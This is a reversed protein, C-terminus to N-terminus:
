DKRSKSGAVLLCIGAICLAAFIVFSLKMSLLYEAYYEPTIQADGILIAFLIMVIGMSLVQGTHRMTAQAGAAVGFYKKDVSTMVATTVPSAFLGFGSGMIVLGVLVHWLPTNSTLFAFLVLALCTIGMGVIAIRLPDIKDSIRGAIPALFVMIAPQIILIAGAAQPSFELNYQLYLSLLFNPAFVGCYVILLSLLSFVFVRNNKFINVNLVPNFTRTEIRYFVYLGILGLVILPISLLSPISSFGYITLILSVMLALSGNVDLKEGLSEMREGRIKWFSVIAAAIFLVATTYFVSRWGLSSTLLGGWYPGITLGCYVAGTNIGIAKGRENASFSSTLISISPGWIMSGGIGQLARWVILLISSNAAATLLSSVIFVLLGLLFIRKRGYIDSIRGVPIMTVATALLFSTAVWSLLHAEMSFEAGMSPLAINIATTLLAASFTALSTVALLVNKNENVTTM